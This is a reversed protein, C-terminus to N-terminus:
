KVTLSVADWLMVDKSKHAHESLCYEGCCFAPSECKKSHCFYTAPSNTQSCLPNLYM